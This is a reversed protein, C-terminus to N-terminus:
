FKPIARRIVKSLVYVFTTAIAGYIADGYFDTKTGQGRMQRIAIEKRKDYYNAVNWGKRVYYYILGWIVGHIIGEVILKYITM